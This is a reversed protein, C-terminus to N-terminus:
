VGYQTKTASLIIESGLSRGLEEGLPIVKKTNRFRGNPVIKKSDREKWRTPVAEVNVGYLIGKANNKHKIVAM